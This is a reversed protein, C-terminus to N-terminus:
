NYTCVHYWSVMRGYYLVSCLLLMAKGEVTKDVADFIKKSAEITQTM